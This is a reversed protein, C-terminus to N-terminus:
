LDQRGGLSGAHQQAPKWYARGGLFCLDASPPVQRLVLAAAVVDGGSGLANVVMLISLGVELNPNPPVVQLLAILCAPLLSLTLLPALRMSLWRRRSMCGEYYVGFRLRSPWLALISRETLGMGPQGILHVAEHLPIFLILVIAAVLWPSSADSAVAMRTREGVFSAWIALPACQAVLLAFGAIAALWYGKAAPPGTIARLNLTEQASPETTPADGLQLRM